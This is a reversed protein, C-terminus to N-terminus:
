RNVASNSNRIVARIAETWGPADSEPQFSWVEESRGSGARIRVRDGDRAVDAYRRSAPSIQLGVKENKHILLSQRTVIISARRNEWGSGRRGVDHTYRFDLDDGRRVIGEAAFQQEAAPSLNSTTRNCGGSLVIALACAVIRKMLLGWFRFNFTTVVREIRWNGKSHRVVRLLRLQCRRVETAREFRRESISVGEVALKAAPPHAANEHGHIPRELSLDDHFNELVVRCRAHAEVAEASLNLERCLQLM